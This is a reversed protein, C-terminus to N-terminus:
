KDSALARDIDDHLEWASGDVYRRARRLLEKLETETPSAQPETNEVASATEMVFAKFRDCAMRWGTDWGAPRDYLLRLGQIQELMLQADVCKPPEALMATIEVMLSDAIDSGALDAANLMSRLVPLAKNIRTLLDLMQDTM